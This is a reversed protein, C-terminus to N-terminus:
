SDGGALFCLGNEYRSNSVLVQGGSIWESQNRPNFNTYVRLMCINCDENFVRDQSRM